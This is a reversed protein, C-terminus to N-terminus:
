DTLGIIVREVILRRQALGEASVDDRGNIAVRGGAAEDLRHEVVFAEVGNLGMAERM